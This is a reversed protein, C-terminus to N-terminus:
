YESVYRLEITDSEHITDHDYIWHYLASGAAYRKGFSNPEIFYPTDNEGVFALDMVYSGAYEMKERIEQDFFNLIQHVKQTIEEDSLTNLWDNITYIHQQSIATIQNNYVFIRFEKDEDIYLWRMLYINCTEDEEDICTHGASSSVLSQFVEKINTYPGIGHQGYKLSVNETRVFYKGPPFQDEYKKCTEQLEDDFIHSCKNIITGM